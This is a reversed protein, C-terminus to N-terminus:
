YGVQYYISLGNLSYGVNGSFGLIWSYTAFPRMMVIETGGYPGLREIVGGRKFRLFTLQDIHSGDDSVKGEIGTLMASEEFTITHLTGRFDTGHQQGLVTRGDFLLYEVQISNM